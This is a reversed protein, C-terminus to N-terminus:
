NNAAIKISQLQKPVLTGMEPLSHVLQSNVISLIVFASYVILEKIEYREFIVFRKLRARHPTRRLRHDIREGRRSLGPDHQPITGDGGGPCHAALQQDHHAVRGACSKAGARLQDAILSGPHGGNQDPHAPNEPSICDATRHCLGSGDYLSAGLRLRRFSAM